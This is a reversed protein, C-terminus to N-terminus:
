VKGRVIHNNLRNTITKNITTITGTKLGAVPQFTKALQSPSGWRNPTLGGTRFGVSGNLRFCRSSLPGVSRLEKCRPDVCSVPAWGPFALTTWRRGQCSAWTCSFTRAAKTCSPWFIGRREVSSMSWKSAGDVSAPVSCQRTLGKIYYLPRVKEKRRLLFWMPSCSRGSVAFFYDM